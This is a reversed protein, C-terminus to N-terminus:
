DFFHDLSFKLYEQEPDGRGVVAVVGTFFFTLAIDRGPM